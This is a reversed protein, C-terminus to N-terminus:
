PITHMKYWNYEFYLIPSYAFLWNASGHTHIQSDSGGSAILHTHLWELSLVKEQQAQLNQLSFSSRTDWVKITRDHSGSAFCFPQSPNFRVSTTWKSHGKFTSAPKSPERRDWLRVQGDEHASLILSRNSDISTVVSDRTLFTETTTM